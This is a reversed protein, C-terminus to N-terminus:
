WEKVVIRVVEPFGGWEVSGVCWLLDDRWVSLDNNNSCLFSHILNGMTIILRSVTVRGGLWGAGAVSGDLLTALSTM